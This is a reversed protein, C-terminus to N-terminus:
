KVVPHGKIFVVGVVHKDDGSVLVAHDGVLVRVSPENAIQRLKVAELVIPKWKDDGVWSPEGGAQAQEATLDLVAVIGDHRLVREIKNMVMKFVQDGPRTTAGYAPTRRGRVRKYLVAGSADIM